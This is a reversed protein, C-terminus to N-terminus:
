LRWLFFSSYVAEHPEWVISTIIRQKWEQRIMIVIETHETGRNGDCFIVAVVHWNWAPTSKAQFSTVHHISDGKHAIVHDPAQSRQGQWGGENEEGFSECARHVWPVAHMAKSYSWCIHTHKDAVCPMTSRSHSFLSKFGTYGKIFVFVKLPWFLKDRFYLMPPHLLKLSVKFVSHVYM